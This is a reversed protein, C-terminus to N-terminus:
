APRQELVSLRNEHDDLQETLADAITDMKINLDSLELKVEAMDSKLTGVDQKVVALNQTVADLDAKTALDSTAQSVTTAIFQKLDTIVDENMAKLYVTATHRCGATAKVVCRWFDPCM